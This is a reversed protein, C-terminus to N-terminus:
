PVSVRFFRAPTNPAVANTYSFGGNAGFQNTVVPTWQTFPLSVNTATLIRYTAGPVGAGAEVVVQNGFRTLTQNITPTFVIEVITVSAATGNVAAFSNASIARFSTGYGPAASTAADLFANEASDSGSHTFQMVLDGGQYVYPADLAAMTGFANPSSGATFHNAGVSLAGDKALVPNLMNASFNTSMSAIANAAQALRIEYDAWTVTNSPFGTTTGTYVRFGLATIRAGVPLGGLADPTFQMQYTRALGASRVLTNLGSNGAVARYDDPAVLSPVVFIGFSVSVTVTGTASNGFSDFATFTITDQGVFGAPPVYRVNDAYKVTAWDLAGFSTGGSSSTGTVYVGGARDVTMGRPLDSANAPGNYRNTWLATGNASYKVTVYNFNASGSPSGSAIALYVNGANDTGAGDFEQTGANPDVFRNTWLPVGASSYKITTFDATTAGPTGGVLFVNGVPDVSIQPVGGGGYSVATVVNTWLAVGSNSYKVVAYRNGYISHMDVAVIVNEQQDVIVRTGSGGTGGVGEIVYRNAWLVSGDSAYKVTMCSSGNDFSSGTVFINGAADVAIDSASEQSTLSSKFFNTWAPYGNADYKITVFADSDADVTAVYTNGDNDVALGSLFMFMAASSYNNTWVSTGDAAYKITTIGESDGTVYVGGSEDVAVARIQDDGNGPGNYRNTWLGEGNPSYKITLFDQGSGIGASYGVAIINGSTDAKVSMAQDENNAPGNYRRAWQPSGVLSVAGGQASSSQVSGVMLTVPPGSLGPLGNTLLTAAAFVLNSNNPTAISGPQASTTGAGVICGLAMLSLFRYPM